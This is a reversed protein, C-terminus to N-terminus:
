EEYRVAFSLEQVYNPTTEGDKEEAAGDAQSIIVCSTRVRQQYGLVYLTCALHENSVEECVAFRHLIGSGYLNWHGGFHQQSGRRM